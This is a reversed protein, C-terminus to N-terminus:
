LDDNQQAYLLKGSIIEFVGPTVMHDIPDNFYRAVRVDSSRIKTREPLSILHWGNLVDTAREFRSFAMVNDPGCLFALTEDPHRAQLGNLVDITHVPENGDWLEREIDSRLIRDDGIDAIFADVMTLRDEFPLMKKLFAHSISPVLWVQDCVSLAQVIADLHGKTPPNFASGFIGIM